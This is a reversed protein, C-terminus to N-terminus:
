EQQDLLLIRHGLFLKLGDEEVDLKDKKFGHFALAEPMSFPFLSLKPVVSGGPVDIVAEAIIEGIRYHADYFLPIWLLLHISWIEPLISSRLFDGMDWHDPSSFEIIRFAYLAYLVPLFQGEHHICLEWSGLGDPM